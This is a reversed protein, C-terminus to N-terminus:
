SLRASSGGRRGFYEDWTPGASRGDSPLVLSRRNATKDVPAKAVDLLNVVSQSPVRGYDFSGRQYRRYEERERLDREREKERDRYERDRERDRDRDRDRDRERDRDRDREGRDRERNRDREREKERERDRSDRPDKPDRERGGAVEPGTGAVASSSFMGAPANPTSGPLVGGAGYGVLSAVDVSHRHSISTGSSTPSRRRPTPTSGPFQQSVIASSRRSTDDSNTRPLHGPGPPERRLIGPPGTSFSTRKREYSGSEGNWASSEGDQDPPSAMDGKSKHTPVHKPRSSSGTSPGSGRKDSPIGQSGSAPQAGPTKERLSPNVAELFDKIADDLRRRSRRDSSKPLLYRSIQKPLREPKGDLLSDANIPLTSVIKELRKAEEDPYARTNMVLWQMFGQPTLGPVTPRGKGDFPVLHFECGLDYYLDALRDHAVRTQMKFMDWFPFKENLVPNHSYFTALKVPTVVMSRQPLFEDAIYNALSRIIQEFRPTAIGDEDFLKGWKQDVASLEIPPKSVAAPAAISPSLIPVDTRLGSPAKEAFQVRPQRQTPSAEPLKTPSQSPSVTAAAAAVPPKSEVSNVSPRMSSTRSPITSPDVTAPKPLQPAKTSVSAPATPPVPQATSGDGQLERPIERERTQEPADQTKGLEERIIKRLEDPVLKRLEGRLLETLSSDSDRNPENNAPSADRKNNKPQSRSNSSKKVDSVGSDEGSDTETGAGGSTSDSDDKTKPSVNRKQTVPSKAQAQGTWDTDRLVAGDKEQM